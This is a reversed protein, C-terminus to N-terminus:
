LIEGTETDIVPLAECLYKHLGDIINVLLNRYAFSNTAESGATKADTIAKELDEKIIVLM